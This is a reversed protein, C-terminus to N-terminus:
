QGKFLIRSVLQKIINKSKFQIKQDLIFNSTFNFYYKYDTLSIFGYYQFM